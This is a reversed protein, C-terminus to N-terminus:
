FVPKSGVLIRVDEQGGNATNMVIHSDFVSADTTFAFRALTFGSKVADLLPGQGGTVILSTPLADQFALASSHVQWRAIDSFCNELNIAFLLAEPDGSPYQVRVTGSSPLAGALTECQERTVSRWTVRAQVIALQLEQRSTQENLEAIKLDDAQKQYTQQADIFFETVIEVALGAVLIVFGVKPLVPQWGKARVDHIIEVGELMVGIVVFASAVLFILHLTSLPLTLVGTHRRVATFM